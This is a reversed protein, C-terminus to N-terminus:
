RERNEKGRHKTKEDRVFPLFVGLADANVCTVMHYVLESSDVNVLHRGRPEEDKLKQGSRCADAAVRVGGERGDRRQGSGNEVRPKEDNWGAWRIVSRKGRSTRDRRSRIIGGGDLVM